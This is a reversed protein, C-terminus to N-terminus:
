HRSIKSASRLRNSWCFHGCRRQDLGDWLPMMDCGLPNCRKHDKVTCMESSYSAALLRKLEAICNSNKIHLFHSQYLPIYTYIYIHARAEHMISFILLMNYTCWLSNELNEMLNYGYFM